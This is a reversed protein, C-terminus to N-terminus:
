EFLHDFSGRSHVAFDGLATNLCVDFRRPATQRPQNMVREPNAEVRRHVLQLESEPFRGDFGPGERSSVLNQLQAAVRIEGYRDDAVATEAFLDHPVFEGPVTERLM